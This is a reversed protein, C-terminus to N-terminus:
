FASFAPCEEGSPISSIAGKAVALCAGNSAFMTCRQCRATIKGDNLTAPISATQALEHLPASVHTKGLAMSESESRQEDPKDASVMPLVM